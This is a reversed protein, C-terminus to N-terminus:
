IKVDQVVNNNRTVIVVCRYVSSLSKLYSQYWLTISSFWYGFIQHNRVDLFRASCKWLSKAFATTFYTIKWSCQNRLRFINELWKFLSAVQNMEIMIWTRSLFFMNKVIEIVIKDVQVRRIYLCLTHTHTHWINHCM